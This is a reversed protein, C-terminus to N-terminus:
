GRAALLRWRMVQMNSMPRKLILFDINVRALRVRRLRKNRAHVFILWSQM